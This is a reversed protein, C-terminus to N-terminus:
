RETDTKPQYSRSGFLCKYEPEVHDHIAKGCNKCVHIINYDSEISTFSPGGTDSVWDVKVEIESTRVRELVIGIGWQPFRICSVRMGQKINRYADYYKDKFYAYARVENFRVFM